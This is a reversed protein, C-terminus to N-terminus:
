KFATVSINDLYWRNQDKSGITMNVPRITIRTDDTVGKLRFEAHQWGMVFLDSADKSLTVSVPDSVASGNEATGAGSVEVVLEVPDQHDRKTTIQPCWDFRVVADVPGAGFACAPLTIGTNVGTKGFKLYNAQLYMVKPTPNIDVYGRQAFADLYGACDASSYVNPATTNPTNTGVADGAKSATVWSEIWSFDERFVETEVPTVSGDSPLVKVNDLYWRRYISTTSVAGTFDTPRIVIRTDNDVGTIRVTESKWDWPADAKQPHTMTGTVVTGNGEVVVELEVADPGGGGVHVGWDFTLTINSVGKFDLKPLRIGNVNKGKSFKLYDTQLYITKSAPFLDEYGLAALLDAFGEVATYANKAADDKDKGMSDGAGASVALDHLWSFDDDLFILKYVGKDEVQAAVLNVVEPNSGLTFGKVVVVHGNLDAFSFEASPALVLAKRSDEEGVSVFFNGDSGLSIIGTVTAYEIQAPAYTAIAGSIDNEAPYTVAGTGLSEPEDFEVLAPMGNLTSKVGKFSLKDGISVPETSAVFIYGTGDGAIFGQRNVAVVQAGPISVVTKDALGAIESFTRDTVGRYKDGAQTVVVYSYSLLKDGRFVITDRRPFLLGGADSNDTVTIRVGEVTGDGSSPTVTVWEPADSVWRNDAYITLTQAPAQVAEYQLLTSSAMVARAVPNEESRCSALFFLAVVPLLLGSLIHNRLNMTYM